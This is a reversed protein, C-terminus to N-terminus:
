NLSDIPQWGVKQTHKQTIKHTGKQTGRFTQYGKTQQRM